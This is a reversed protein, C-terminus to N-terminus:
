CGRSLVRWDGELGNVGDVHGASVMNLFGVTESGERFRWDEGIGAHAGM